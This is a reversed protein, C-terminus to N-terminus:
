GTIRQHMDRVPMYQVAGTYNWGIRQVVQNQTVIRKGVALFRSEDQEIIQRCVPIIVGDGNPLEVKELLWERSESAWKQFELHVGGGEM